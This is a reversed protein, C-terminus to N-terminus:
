DKDDVGTSDPFATVSFTDIDLWYRQVGDPVIVEPEIMHTGPSVNSINLIISIDSSVIKEVVKMLGEIKISAAVPSCEMEMNRDDMLITPPINSLTRVTLKGMELEVLVEEPDVTINYGETHLKVQEKIIGTRNRVDLENTSLFHINEVITSAGSVLVKNPIIVPDGTIFRKKSVEGKYALKVPVKKTLVKQLNLEIFKPKDVLLSRPSIDKPIEIINSSLPINVWGERVVPLNVVGKIKGFLRLKILKVRTEKITVEMLDPVDNVVVFRDPIGTIQLPVKFIQEDIHQATVQIWLFIALIVSIIKAQYSYTFVRFFNKTNLYLKV